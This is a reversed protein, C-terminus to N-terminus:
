FPSAMKMMRTRKRTTLVVAHRGDKMSDNTRLGENPAIHYTVRYPAMHRTPVVNFICYALETFNCNLAVVNPALSLPGLTHM